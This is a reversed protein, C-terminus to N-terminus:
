DYGASKWGELFSERSLEGLGPAQVIECALFLEANELNVGLDQLYQITGDVSTMDTDDSAM